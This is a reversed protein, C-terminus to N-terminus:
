VQGSRTYTVTWKAEFIQIGFEKYEKLRRCLEQLKKEFAALQGHHLPFVSNTELGYSDTDRDWYFRWFREGGDCVDRWQDHTSVRWIACSKQHREDGIVDARIKISVQPM